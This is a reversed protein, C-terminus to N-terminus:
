SRLAKGTSDDAKEFQYGFFGLDARMYDVVIERTRDDYYFSYHGHSSPNRVLSATAREYSVRQLGCIKRQLIPWASSLEELKFVDDVLLTGAADVMWSLQSANFWADRANGHPKSGFLHQNAHGPPFGAHM